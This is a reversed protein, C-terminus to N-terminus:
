TFSDLPLSVDKQNPDPNKRIFVSSINTSHLLPIVDNTSAYFRKISFEQFELCDYDWWQM